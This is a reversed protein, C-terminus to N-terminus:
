PGEAWRGQEDQKWYHREVSADATLSRWTERANEIMQQDFLFFIRTYGPVVNRWVGDVIALNAVPTDADIVRSLRVPQDPERGHPLFSEPRYRWLDTDLRDLLSDDDAVIVVQEGQALIREAIAPLVRELPQSTLHYFDVRL